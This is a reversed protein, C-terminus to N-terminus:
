KDADETYCQGDQRPKFVKYGSQCMSIEGNEYFAVSDIFNCPKFYHYYGVTLVCGVAMGIFFDWLTLM